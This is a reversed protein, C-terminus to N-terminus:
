KGSNKTTTNLSMITRLLADLVCPVEGCGSVDNDVLVPTLVIRFSNCPFCMGVLRDPRESVGHAKTLLRQLEACEEPTPHELDPWPSTGFGIKVRPKKKPAAGVTAVLSSSAILVDGTAEIQEIETGSSATSGTATSRTAQSESITHLDSFSLPQLGGEVSPTPTTDPALTTEEGLTKKFKIRIKISKNQRILNLLSNAESTNAVDIGISHGDGRPSDPGSDVDSGPRSVSAQKGSAATYVSPLFSAAIELNEQYEEPGKEGPPSYPHGLQSM